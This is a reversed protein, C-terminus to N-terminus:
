RARRGSDLSSHKVIQDWMDDVPERQPQQEREEGEAEHQDDANHFDDIQGMSRKKGEAGVNGKGHDRECRHRMGHDNLADGFKWPYGAGRGYEAHRCFLGQNSFGRPCVSHCDFGFRKTGKRCKKYCLLGIRDEDHKCAKPITGVGRGYSDKWCFDQAQAATPVGITFGLSLLFGILSAFLFKRAM